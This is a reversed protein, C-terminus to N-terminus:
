ANTENSIYTLLVLTRISVIYKVIGLRFIQDLKTQNWFKDATQWYDRRKFLEIFSGQHRNQKLGLIRQGLLIALQKLHFPNIKLKLWLRYPRHGLSSHLPFGTGTAQASNKFVNEKFGHIVKRRLFAHLFHHNILRGYSTLALREQNISRVLLVQRGDLWSTCCATIM